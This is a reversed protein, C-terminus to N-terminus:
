AVELAASLRLASLWEAGLGRVGPQARGCVHALGALGEAWAAARRSAIIVPTEQRAIAEALRARTDPTRAFRAQALRLQAEGALSPLTAVAEGVPCRLADQLRALANGSGGLLPPLLVQEGGRLAAVLNNRFVADEFRAALQSLSADVPSGQMQAEVAQARFGAAVLGAAVMSGSWERWGRLAVVTVARARDLALVSPLYADAQRVLGLASVVEIRAFRWGWGSWLRELEARESETADGPWAAVAPATAFDDGDDAIVEANPLRARVVM